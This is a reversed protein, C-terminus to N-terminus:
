ISYKVELIEEHVNELEKEINKTNEGTQIKIEAITNELVDLKNKIQMHNEQMEAYMKKMFDMMVEDM